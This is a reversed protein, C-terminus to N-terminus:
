GISALIIMDEASSINPTDLAYSKSAKSHFSRGCNKGNVFFHLGNDHSWSRSKVRYAHNQKASLILGM